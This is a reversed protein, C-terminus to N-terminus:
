GSKGGDKKWNELALSLDCLFMMIGGGITTATATFASIKGVIIHLESLADLGLLIMTFSLLWAIRILIQILM